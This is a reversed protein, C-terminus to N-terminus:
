AYQDPWDNQLLVIDGSVTLHPLAVLLESMNSFWRIEGKYHADKLGREISPTVSNKILFVKGIGAHALEKGIEKHVEETRAGMEVLGPTVYIRRQNKLSSLFEIVAKVGDPNGNYSDDLLTVGNTDTTSHLRHEFPKTKAIGRQIEEPSLGLRFGIDAAAVLPGIQHLGLLCSKVPMVVGDKELIFSTGTLDTHPDKVGWEGAGHQTYLIHHSSSNKRALENEGNVYLPRIGLYEALEFITKATQDLNKFKELHAENVGTIFGIRPKILRCLARVDGPYYEGLEFILVEESGTLTHAFQSVGLPTNRSGPPAAVRKSESLVTKLIERMSTKGYSGAIGIKLATHKALIRKARGTIVYTVPWQVFIKLLLLPLLIGYAVVYPATFVILAFLVYRVPFVAIWLFFFALAYLLLFVIWALALLFVAKPTKVLQKRQEVRTFDRIRKLWRVYDGIEYESAQLM